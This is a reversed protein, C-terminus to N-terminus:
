GPHTLVWETREMQKYEDISKLLEHRVSTKMMEELDGMWDEVNRKGPDIMDVFEIREREGSYM